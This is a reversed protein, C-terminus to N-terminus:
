LKNKYNIENMIIKKCKITWISIVKSRTVNVFTEKKIVEM